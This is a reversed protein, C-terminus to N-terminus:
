NHTNDCFRLLSGIQCKCIIIIQKITQSFIMSLWIINWVNWISNGLETIIKYFSNSSINYWWYNDIFKTFIWQHALMKIIQIGHHTRKRITQSIDMHVYLINTQSFFWCRIKGMHNRIKRDTIKFYRDVMFIWTQEFMIVM